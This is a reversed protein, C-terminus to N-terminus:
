VPCVTSATEWLGEPFPTGPRRGYDECQGAVLVELQNHVHVQERNHQTNHRLVSEVDGEREGFVM